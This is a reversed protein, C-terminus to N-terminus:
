VENKNLRSDPVCPAKRIYRVGNREFLIDTVPSLSEDRFARNMQDRMMKTMAVEFKKKVVSCFREAESWSEVEKIPHCRVTCFVFADFDGQHYDVTVCAAHDINSSDNRCRRIVLREFNDADLYSFGNNVAILVGVGDSQLALASSKIQKSAKKIATQLPKSVISELKQRIKEPASNLDIDVVDDGASVSEFLHALKSQRETKDLGEEEFIKLELIGSPAVYDANQEGEAVSRVASFRKWGLQDAVGDIFSETIRPVPFMSEM